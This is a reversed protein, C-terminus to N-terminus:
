RLFHPRSDSMAACNRSLPAVSSSGCSVPRLLLGPPSCRAWPPLSGPPILQPSSTNLDAYLADPGLEGAVRAAADLAVAASNVSLVVDAGRVADLDSDAGPVGEHRRAPDWGRVAVGAAVLDAAIRGGAEGLGLVAVKM